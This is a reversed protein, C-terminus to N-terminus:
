KENEKIKNSMIVSIVALVVGCAGVGGMFTFIKSYGDVGYTDLWTGFMTHMFLDPMYGILTMLALATGGVRTPVRLESLLSYATVRNAYVSLGFVLMVAIVLFSNTSPIVLFSLILCTTIVHALVQWKASSKFVKDAMFGGFIGGVRCGYERIAGLMSAFAVAVGVKDTLYPNLYGMGSYMTIGVFLLLSPIWVRPMVIVKVFDKLVIKDTEEQADENFILTDNFIFWILLGAVVSMVAFTLVIGEFGAVNDAFQLAVYTALFTVAMSTLGNIGEFIGYIRGQEEKTGMLRVGKLMSPWFAFGGTLACAGWVITAITFDTRFLYFIFCLGGNAICCTSLLARPSFKDALWGGPLYSLTCMLAYMSVLQGLQANSFGTAELMQNYFTSKMYPLLYIVGYAFGLAFLALLRQLNKM